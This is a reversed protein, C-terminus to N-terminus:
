RWEAYRCAGEREEEPRGADPTDARRRCPHGHGADRATALVAAAVAAAVARLAASHSAPRRSGRPM